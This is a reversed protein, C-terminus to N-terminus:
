TDRLQWGRAKLLCCARSRPPWVGQEACWGESRLALSVPGPLVVNPVNSAQHPGRQALIPAAWLACCGLIALWAAAVVRMKNSYTLGGRYGGLTCTFPQSGILTAVDGKFDRAM